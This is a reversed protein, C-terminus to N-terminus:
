GGAVADRAGVDVGGGDAAAGRDGPDGAGVELQRPPLPLMLRPEVIVLVAPRATSMWFRVPPVVVMEPAMQSLPPVPMMRLWFEPPWAVLKVPSMSREVPALSAKVEVPEPMTVAVWASLVRVVVVPLASLTVLRM